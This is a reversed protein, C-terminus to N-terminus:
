QRLRGANVTPRRRSCPRRQVACISLGALGVLLVAMSGPEAVPQSFMFVGDTQSLAYDNGTFFGWPDGGQLVFSDSTLGRPDTRFVGSHIDADAVLLDVAETAAEGPPMTPDTVSGRLYIEVGPRLFYAPGNFGGVNSSDDPIAVSVSAGPALLLTGTRYSLDGAFASDAMTGIVGSFTTAGTNAVQFFGTDPEIFGQDVRNKFPDAAAFATSLTISYSILASRGPAPWLALVISVLPLFRVM